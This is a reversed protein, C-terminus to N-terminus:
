YEARSKQFYLLAMNGADAVCSAKRPPTKLAGAGGAMIPANSKGLSTLYEGIIRLRVSEDLCVQEYLAESSVTANGSKAVSPLAGEETKREGFDVAQM